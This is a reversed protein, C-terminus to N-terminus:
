SRGVLNGFNSGGDVEEGQRRGLYEAQLGKRRSCLM